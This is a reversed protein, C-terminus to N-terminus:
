VHLSCPSVPMDPTPNIIRERYQNLCVALDQVYARETQILENLILERRRAAKRKKEAEESLGEEPGAILSTMSSIPQVAGGKGARSNAGGCAGDYAAAAAQLRNMLARIGTAHYHGELSDVLKCLVRM